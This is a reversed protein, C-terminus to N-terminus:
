RSLMGTNSKFTKGSRPDVYIGPSQRVGYGARPQAAQPAVNNDKPAAGIMGTNSPASVPGPNPRPTGPTQVAAPDKPMVPASAAAQPNPVNAAPAAAPDPTGLQNGKGAYANAGYLQDLGNKMADAAAQDIKKQEQLMSITDYAHKHDLGAKQYMGLINQMTDGSSLAANTLMGTLDDKEKGATGTIITALAQLGAVAGPARTDSFDVDYPHREDKGDINVGLNKLMKDGDIGLNFKSGDALTYDYNDDVFGNEKLDKRYIDRVMQDKDKGSGFERSLIGMLGYKTGFKDLENMFHPAVGRLVGDAVSALGGTFYDGVTRAIGQEARTAAYDDGVKKWDGYEDFTRYASYAASAIGAWSPGNYDWLPLGSAEGATAMVTGNANQGIVQYGAQEAAAASSFTTAGGTGATGLDLGMAAQTAAYDGGTAAASTAGSGLASSSQAATQSGIMGTNAATSASTSAATTGSGVASSASNYAGSVADATGNYLSGVGERIGGIFGSPDKALGQGVGYAIGAGAVPALQDILSPDKKPESLGSQEYYSQQAKPDPKYSDSYPDYIYGAQEGYHNYAPGVFPYKVPNKPGPTPNYGQVNSNAYDVAM